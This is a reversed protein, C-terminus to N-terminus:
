PRAAGAYDRRFISQERVTQGTRPAAIMVGGGKYIGVHHIPHGFFVLDGPALQARSVHPLSAYQARSSHPLSVGGARWAYMTLGSCDFADPGAAGWRYPKGIQAAATQVAKAAGARVPGAPKIDKALAAAAALGARREAELQAALEGQATRLLSQTRVFAAQADKQRQAIVAEDRRAQDRLRELQGAAAQQEAKIRRITLLLTDASTIVRGALTSGRQWQRFSKAEYVSDLFAAPHMYLERVAKGLEGRVGNLREGTRAVGARADQLKGELRGRKLKAEDYSETVRSLHDSARDLQVRLAAVRSQATAPTANILSTAAVVALTSVLTILRM